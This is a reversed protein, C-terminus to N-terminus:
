VFSHGHTRQVQGLGDRALPCRRLDVGGGEPVGQALPHVTLDAEVGPAPGGIGRVRRVEPLGREAHDDRTGGSERGDLIETMKRQGRERLDPDIFAEIPDSGVADEARIGLLQEARLSWQDVLGDPGISFSAVKIYDYISGPPSSQWVADGLPADASPGGSETSETPEKARAPIESVRVTGELEGCGAGTM